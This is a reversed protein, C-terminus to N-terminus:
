REIKPKLHMNWTCTRPDPATPVNRLRRVALHSSSVAADEM